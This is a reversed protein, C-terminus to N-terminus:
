MSIDSIKGNFLGDESPFVISNYKGTNWEQHIDDFESDIVQKFENIDSDNWRGTVGKKERNYWRQTSVPRSNDLGRIVAATRTPFHLGEGYKKAYWTNPQILGSGSDRDTNDTFIFL